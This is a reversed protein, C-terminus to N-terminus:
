DLIWNILCNFHFWGNVCVRARWERAMNDAHRILWATSPHWKNKRCENESECFKWENTSHTEKQSRDFKRRTLWHTCTVREFNIFVIFLMEFGVSFFVFRRVGCCCQLSRSFRFYNASACFDIEPKHSQSFHKRLVILSACVASRGSPMQKKKREKNKQKKTASNWMLHEFSRFIENTESKKSNNHRNTPQASAQRSFRIYNCLLFLAFILHM